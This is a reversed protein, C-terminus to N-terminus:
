APRRVLRALRAEDRDFLCWVFGAGLAAALRSALSSACVTLSAADPSSGQAISSACAGHACASPRDAARGRSSSIPRVDLVLLRAASGASVAAAPSRCRRRRRLGAPGARQRVDVHRGAVLLDYFLAALRLWLPAPTPRSEDDHACPSNASAERTQAAARLGSIASSTGDADDVCLRTYRAASRARISANRSRAQDSSPRASLVSTWSDDHDPPKARQSPAGACARAEARHPRSSSYRYRARARSLPPAAPASVARTRIRSQQRRQPMKIPQQLAVARDAFIRGQQDIGRFKGRPRGLASASLPPRLGAAPAATVRREPRRSRAM